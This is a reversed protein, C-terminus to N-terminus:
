RRGTETATVRSDMDALAGHDSEDFNAAHVWFADRDIEVTITGPTLTISNAYITAALESRQTNPVRFLHQRLGMKPSLILKTVAINSVAIEKMLWALYTIFKLPKLPISLRHGDIIDMRRVVLVAIVASALGLWVILPKYIGSMLLWLAFLTLASLITRL